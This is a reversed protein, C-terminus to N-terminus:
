AVATTEERPPREQGLRLLCFGATLIARSLRLLVMNEIGNADVDDVKVSASQVGVDM